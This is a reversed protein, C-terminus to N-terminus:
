LEDHGKPKEAAGATSAKDGNIINKGNVATKKLFDILASKTRAGSYDVVENDGAKVLKLTPFGQVGFSKPVDNATADIKAIKIGAVDKLTTALDNYIPTLTKCHGCWPAYFEILVDADADFVTEKFNQGVLVYVNDEDTPTAPVAESRLHAKLSGSKFQSLWEKVDASKIDKTEDFPFHEGESTEIAIVPMKNGTLGMKGLMQNYQVGNLWVFSLDRFEPALGKFEGLAADFDESKSPDVFLWIIPQGREVYGRYNEPGIEDVLRFSNSKAFKKLEDADLGGEYVNRLDDFGKYLVITEDKEDAATNESLYFSFDDRYQDAFKAYFTEVESGKKAYAVLVADAKENPKIGAVDSASALVKVSPGQQKKLFGAIDKATRGGQYESDKGNRFLKITPFGQVQFKQALKEEITADVKALAIDTEDKLTEAAASYEPDLKKCHGCWPAYFEVLVLPYKALTEEFNAETLVLVKDDAAVLGVVGLLLLLVLTRM